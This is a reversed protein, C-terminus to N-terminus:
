KLLLSGLAILGAIHLGILWRFQKSSEQRLERVDQKIERLQQGIAETIGELRGIREGYDQGLTTPNSM